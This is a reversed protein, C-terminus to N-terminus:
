RYEAKEICFYFFSSYQLFSIVAISGIKEVINKQVFLINGGNKADSAILTFM